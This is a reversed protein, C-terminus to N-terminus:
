LKSCFHDNIYGSVGNVLREMSKTEHNIWLWIFNALEGDTVDCKLKKRIKSFINERLEKVSDNVRYEIKHIKKM